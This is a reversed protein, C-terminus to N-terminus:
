DDGKREKIRVTIFLLGIILTRKRPTYRIAARGFDWIAIEWRGISWKWRPPTELWKIFRKAQIETLSGDGDFLDAVVRDAKELYEKTTIM